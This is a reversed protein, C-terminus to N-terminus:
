APCDGAHVRGAELGGLKAALLSRMANQSLQPTPNQWVVRNDDGAGPQNGADAQLSVFALFSFSFLFGALRSPHSSWATPRAGPLIRLQHLCSRGM